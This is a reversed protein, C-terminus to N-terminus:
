VHWPWFITYPMHNITQPHKHDIMGYHACLYLLNNMSQPNIVIVVYPICDLQQAHCVHDRTKGLTDGIGLAAGTLVVCLRLPLSGVQCVISTESSM